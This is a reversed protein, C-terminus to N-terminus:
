PAPTLHSSILHSSMTFLARSQGLLFLPLSAPQGTSQYSSFLTMAWRIDDAPTDNENAGEDWRCRWESGEVGSREWWWCCCCGGACGCWCWRLSASGCGPARRLRFPFAFTLFFFALVWGVALGELAAMLLPVRPILDAKGHEMWERAKGQRAKGQRAKGQRKGTAWVCGVCM